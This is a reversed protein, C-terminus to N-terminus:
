RRGLAAFFSQGAATPQSRIVPSQKFIPDFGFAANAVSSATAPKAVKGVSQQPTVPRAVAPVPLVQTQNRNPPAVFLMKRQTPSAPATAGRLAPKTYADAQAYNVTYGLDAFQGVTIRSIPMSTGAPEAYGTMLETKFVSERWHGDATGQGGTNEVPVGTGTTAFTSNYERVANTGTFM